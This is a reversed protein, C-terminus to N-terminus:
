MARVQSSLPQSTVAIAPGPAEGAVVVADMPNWVLAETAAGAAIDENRPPVGMINREALPPPLDVVPQMVPLLPVIWRLDRRSYIADQEHRAM